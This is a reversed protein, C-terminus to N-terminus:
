IVGGVFLRPVEMLMVEKLWVVRFCVVPVFRWV